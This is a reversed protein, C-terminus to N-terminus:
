KKPSQSQRFKICEKTELAQQEPTPKVLYFPEWCTGDNRPWVNYSATNIIRWGDLTKTIFYITRGNDPYVDVYASEGNLVPPRMKPNKTPNVGSMGSLDEGDLSPHRIFGIEESISKINAIKEMVFYKPYIEKKVKEPNYKGNIEYFEFTNEPVAYLSRIFAQIDNQDANLSAAFSAGLALMWVMLGIFVRKM